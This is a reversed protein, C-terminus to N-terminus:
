RSTAEARLTQRLQRRHAAHRTRLREVLREVAICAEDIPPVATPQAVEATRRLARLRDLIRTADRVLIASPVLPSARRRATGVQHRSCRGNGVALHNCGGRQCRPGVRRNVPLPGHALPDGTKLWRQYHGQCFDRATVTRSCGSVSCPRPGPQREPRPGAPLSGPPGVLGTRRWRAYHRGCLYRTKARRRCGAVGCIAPDAKVTIQVILAVESRNVAWPLDPPKRAQQYHRDCLGKARALRECGPETCPQRSGAVGRPM